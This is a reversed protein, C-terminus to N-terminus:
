GGTGSTVNEAMVVLHFAFIQTSLDTAQYMSCWDSRTPKGM